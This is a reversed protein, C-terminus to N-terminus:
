TKDANAKAKEEEEIALPRCRFEAIQGITVPGEGLLDVAGIDPHHYRRAIVVAPDDGVDREATLGVCRLNGSDEDIHEVIAKHRRWRAHVEQTHKAHGVFAGTDTEVTLAVTRFDLRALVRVDSIEDQEVDLYAVPPQM